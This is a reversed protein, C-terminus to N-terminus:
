QPLDRGISVGHRESIRSLHGASRASCCNACSRLQDAKTNRATGTFRVEDGDRARTEEVMKILKFLGYPTRDATRFSEQDGNIHTLVIDPPGSPIFMAVGAAVSIAAFALQLYRAM